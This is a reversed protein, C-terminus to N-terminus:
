DQDFRPGLNLNLRSISIERLVKREELGQFILQLHLLFGTKAFIIKDNNRKTIIMRM